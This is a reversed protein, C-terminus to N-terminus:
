GTVRNWFKDMFGPIFKRFAVAEEITEFERYFKGDDLLTDCLVWFMGKIEIIQMNM